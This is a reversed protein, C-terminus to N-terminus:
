SPYLSKGINCPLMDKKFFFAPQKLIAFPNTIRSVRKDNNCLVATNFGLNPVRHWKTNPIHLCCVFAPLTQRLPSTYRPGHVNSTHKAMALASFTSCERSTPRKSEVIISYLIM